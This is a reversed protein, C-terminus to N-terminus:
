EEDSAEIPDGVFDAPLNDRYVAGGKYEEPIGNYYLPSNEDDNVHVELVRMTEGNELEKDYAKQWTTKPKESNERPDNGQIPFKEQNEM